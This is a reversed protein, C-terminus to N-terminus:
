DCRDQDCRANAILIGKRSEEEFAALEELYKITRGLPGEPDLEKCRKNLEDLKKQELESRGNRGSISSLLKNYALLLLNHEYELNDRSNDLECRSDLKNLMRKITNGKAFRRDVSDIGQTFLLYLAEYALKDKVTEPIEIVADLNYPNFRYGKGIGKM